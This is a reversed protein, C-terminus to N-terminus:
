GSVTRNRGLHKARYLAEDARMTIDRSAKDREASYTAIGASFTVLPSTPSQAHPLALSAVEARAADAM